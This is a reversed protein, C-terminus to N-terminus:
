VTARVMVSVSRNIETLVVFARELSTMSWQRGVGFEVRLHRDRGRFPVPHQNTRILAYLEALQWKKGCAFVQKIQANSQLSFLWISWRCVLVSFDGVLYM